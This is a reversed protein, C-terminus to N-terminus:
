VRRRVPREQEAMWVAGMGGEGIPQLLKYPGVAAGPVERPADKDGAQYEATGRPAAAPQDLFPGAASHAKLPEEVRLRLGADTGRTEDLYASREAPTAKAVAAAFISEELVPQGEGSPM